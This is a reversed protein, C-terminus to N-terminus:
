DIGMAVLQDLTRVRPSQSKRLNKSIPWESFVMISKTHGGFKVVANNKNERPIM